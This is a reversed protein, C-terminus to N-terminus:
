SYQNTLHNWHTTIRSDRTDKTTIHINQATGIRAIVFGSVQRDTGLGAMM